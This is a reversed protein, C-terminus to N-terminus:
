ENGTVDQLAALGRLMKLKGHNRRVIRRFHDEDQDRFAEEEGLFVVMHVSPDDKGQDKYYHRVLRKLQEDIDEKTVDPPGRFGGSSGGRVQPPKVGTKETVLQRFNTVVKPALGRKQRAENEKRLWERTKEVAKDWREQDRPDVEGPVRSEMMKKVMEPTMSRKMERYGSSICFIAAAQWEMAKQICKTYHEVDRASIPLGEIDAVKIAEGYDRTLGLKDYDRNLPDMWEIALRINSPLGPVLEERFAVVQGGDYLLINFKTGRNLSVLMSAIEKKVKDYAFMGGKEDVLMSRTADVVFVIEDGGSSIGFFNVDSQSHTDPSLSMGLGLEAAGDFMATVDLTTTDEVEPLSVESFHVSTLVNVMQRSAASPKVPERKTLKKVVLEDSDTTEPMTLVLKPPNPRPVRVVVLSILIAVVVHVVIALSMASIRDGGQPRAGVSLPIEGRTLNLKGSYNEWKIAALERDIRPIAPAPKEIEKEVTVEEVLAGAGGGKAAALPEGPMESATALSEAGASTTAVGPGTPKGSVPETTAPVESLEKRERRSDETETEEGHDGSDATRETFGELPELEALGVAGRTMLTHIRVAFEPPVPVDDPSSRVLAQAKEKRGDRIMEEILAM